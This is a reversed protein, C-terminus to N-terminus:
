DWVSAADKIGMLGDDNEVPETYRCGPYKSCGIFKQNNNRNKRIVLEGKCFAEPCNRGTLDEDKVM